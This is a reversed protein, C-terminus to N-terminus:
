VAGQGNAAAVEDAADAGESDDAEAAPRDPISPGIYTVEESVGAPSDPFFVAVGVVLAVAALETRDASDSERPRSAPDIPYIVILPSDGGVSEERFVTVGADTEPDLKAIVLDKQGVDLDAVRDMTSVLSGINAAGAGSTRLRSRTVLCLPGTGLDFESAPNKPNGTVVVSWRHLRGNAAESRIYELLRKTTVKTAREHFQYGDSGFFDEILSVPVTRFATRGRFSEPTAGSARAGELLSRAAAANRELWGKDDDRFLITQPREGSLSENLPKAFRLAAKRTAEMSGHVRVAVGVDLPTLSAYDREIARRIEAEVVALHAFYGSLEQTTWVRPLDTYGPRYGYWRGMQMLTDYLKGARVFYSSVLGELTVGRSLKNGGVVIVFADEGLPYELRDPSRYNDVIVRAKGLVEGVHAEVAGWPEGAPTETKWLAALHKQANGDRWGEARADLAARLRAGMDCQTLSLMSTHVLMTSFLSDRSTGSESMGRGIRAATALIFWDLTTQLCPLDSLDGSQSKKRATSAEAESVIGLQGSPLVAEDDEDIRERGFFHAAGQYGIGAPICRIVDRPYLTGQGAEALVNAFPTATYALYTSRRFNGLMLLSRILGNIRSARTSAGVDPSAQDAEDDILLLGDIPGIGSDDIWDHLLALRCPNKKIVALLTRRGSAADRLLDHSPRRFDATDSTLMAWAPDGSVGLAADVRRQTQVRLNDTVGSLIVIMRWGACRAQAMVATFDTTKGSQVHGLVLGSFFTEPDPRGVSPFGMERVLGASRRAYLAIQEDISDAAVGARALGAETHSVFSRWAACGDTTWWTFDPVHGRNTAITVEGEGYIQQQDIEDALLALARDIMGASTPHAQRLQEAAIKLAGAQRLKLAQGRLEEVYHQLVPDIAM